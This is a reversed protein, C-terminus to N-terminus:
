RASSWNNSFWTSVYINAFFFCKFVLAVLIKILRHFIDAALNFGGAAVRDLESFRGFVRDFLDSDVVRLSEVFLRDFELDEDEDCDVDVAGPNPSGSGHNVDFFGSFGL